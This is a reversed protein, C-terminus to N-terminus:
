RDAYQARLHCAMPMFIGEVLLMALDAVEPM